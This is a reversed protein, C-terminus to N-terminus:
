WTVVVSVIVVEAVEVVVTDLVETVVFVHRGQWIRASPTASSAPHVPLLAMMCHPSVLVHVAYALVSHM